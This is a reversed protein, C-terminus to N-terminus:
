LNLVDVEESNKAVCFDEFTNLNLIYEVREVAGSLGSTFDNAHIRPFGERVDFLTEEIVRFRLLSYEMAQLPSYGVNILATEFLSLSNADESLQQSCSEIISLLSDAAGSEENLRLSFLYLSGDMPPELQDLGNIHHIRGRPSITTKVEISKGPFEFDHRSGFPGRWAEVIDTGYRPVLWTSLFWLEGFLGIISEKSLKSVPIQGWFRRWKALVRSVTEIPNSNSDVLLKALDNGILDFAEHGARDHCELDLYRNAGGSALVMEKSEVTLGRSISDKFDRDEQKLPIIFHRKRDSSVACFLDSSSEPVALRAALSPGRVKILELSTWVEDFLSM